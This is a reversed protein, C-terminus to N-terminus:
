TITRFNCDARSVLVEAQSSRVMGAAILKEVNEHRSDALMAVIPLHGNLQRTEELKRIELICDMGSMVPMCTAMAVADFHTANPVYSNCWASRKVLDVAERGHQALIVNWGYKQLARELVKRHILFDEVVLITLDPGLLSGLPWAVIDHKHVNAVAINNTSPTTTISWLDGRANCNSPHNPGRKVTVLNRSSAAGNTRIVAAPVRRAIINETSKKPTVPSCAGHFNTTNHSHEAGMAPRPYGRPEVAPAYEDQASDLPQEFLGPSFKHETPTLSTGGTRYPVDQVYESEESHPSSLFVKTVECRLAYTYKTGSDFHQVQLRTNTDRSGSMMNTIDTKAVIESDVAQATLDGHVQCSRIAERNSLCGTSKSRSKPGSRSVLRLKDTADSGGSYMFTDYIPPLSHARNLRPRTLMYPLDLNVERGPRSVGSLGQNSQSSTWATPGM